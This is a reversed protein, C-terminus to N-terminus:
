ATARATAPASGGPRSPAARPPRALRQLAPQAALAEAHEPLQGGLPDVAAEVLRAAQRHVGRGGRLLVRRGLGRRLGAARESRAHQAAVLRPLQLRRQGRPHAGRHQEGVLRAAVRHAQRGRDAGGRDARPTRSRVPTSAYATPASPTTLGRLPRHAGPRDHDRRARPRAPQGPGGADPQRQLAALAVRRLPIGRRRRHPHREVQVVLAHDGVRHAVARPDRAPQQEVPEVLREVVAAHPRDGRRGLCTRPTRACGRSVQRPRRGHVGSPSGTIPAWRRAGRTIKAVPCPISPTVSAGSVPRSTAEITRPSTACGARARSDGSRNQVDVAAPYPPSPAARGAVGASHCRRAVSPYPVRLAM